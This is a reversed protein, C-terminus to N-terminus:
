AKKMLKQAIAYIESPDYQPAFQFPTATADPMEGGKPVGDVVQLDSNDAWHAKGNWVGGLNNFDDGWTYLRTHERM